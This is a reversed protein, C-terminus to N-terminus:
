VVTRIESESCKQLINLTREQCYLKTPAVGPEWIGLGNDRVKFRLSCSSQDLLKGNYLGIKNHLNRLGSELPGLYYGNQTYGFSLRQWPVPHRIVDKKGVFM